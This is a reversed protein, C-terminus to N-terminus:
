FLNELYFLFALQFFCFIYFEPTKWFHLVLFFFIDSARKNQESPDTFADFLFIFHKGQNRKGQMTCKSRAESLLSFYVGKELKGIQLISKLISFYFKRYIEKKIITYNWIIRM